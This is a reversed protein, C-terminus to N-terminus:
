RNASVIENIFVGCFGLLILQSDLTFEHGSYDHFPLTIFCDVEERLNTLTNQTILVTRKGLKTAYLIASKIVDTTASLSFFVLVDKETSVDIKGFFTNISVVAEADYKIDLLRQSFHQASLGTEAYGFIKVKHSSNFFSIMKKIEDSDITDDLRSLTESYITAVSKEINHIPTPSEIHQMLAYRFDSYGKFGIKQCFRLLVSRSTETLEALEIIPLDKVTELNDIIYHMIKEESKTMSTENIYMLQIPNM